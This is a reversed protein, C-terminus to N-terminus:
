LVILGGVGSPGIGGFVLVVRVGHPNPDNGMDQSMVIASPTPNSGVTLKGVITKSVM